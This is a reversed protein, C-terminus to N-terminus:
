RYIWSYLFPDVDMLKLSRKSDQLHIEERLGALLKPDFHSQSYKELLLELVNKGNSGKSSFYTIAEQKSLIKEKNKKDKQINSLIKINELEKITLQTEVDFEKIKAIFDDDSEIRFPHINTFSFVDLINGRLAYEGPNKVFDVRTFCQANLNDLISKQNIKENLGINYSLRDSTKKDPYLEVLGEPYTVVYTKENKNEKLHQITETRMIVNANNILEDDYPKRNSYPFFFIKENNLYNCLNSYYLMAEKKDACIFCHNNEKLYSISLPIIVKLNGCLGSLSVENETQLLKSLEITKLDRSYTDLLENPLM